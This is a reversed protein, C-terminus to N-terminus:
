GAHPHNCPEVASEPSVGKFASRRPRLPRPNSDGASRGPISRTAAVAPRQTAPKAMAVVAVRLLSVWKGSSNREVGHAAYDPMWWSNNVLYAFRYEGAPLAFEAAWWGPEDMSEDRRMAHTGPAWQNFDGTLEVKQAHPLYLRFKLTGPTDIIVM